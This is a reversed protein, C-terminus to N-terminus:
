HGLSRDMGVRTGSFLGRKRILQKEAELPHFHLSLTSHALASLIPADPPFDVNKGMMEGLLHTSLPYPAVGCASGKGKQIITVGPVTWSSRCIDALSPHIPGPLGHGLNLFSFSCLSFTPHFPPATQDMRCSALSGAIECTRRAPKKWTQGSCCSSKPFNCFSM